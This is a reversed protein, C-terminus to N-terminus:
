FNRSRGSQHSQQWDIFTCYKSTLDTDGALEYGGTPKWRLVSVIAVKSVNANLSLRSKPNSKTDIVCSLHRTINEIGVFIQNLL